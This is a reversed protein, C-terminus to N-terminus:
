LLLQKAISGMYPSQFTSHTVGFNSPLLGERGMVYTYRAIYIHFASVAAFISTVFLIGMINAITGGAYHGAIDFLYTTPDYNVATLTPILKDVGAAAGGLLGLLGIQM